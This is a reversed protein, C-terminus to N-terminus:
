WCGPRTDSIKHFLKWIAEKSELPIALFLRPRRSEVVTRILNKSNHFWNSHWLRHSAM